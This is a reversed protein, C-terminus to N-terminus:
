SIRFLGLAVNLCSSSPGRLTTSRHCPQSSRTSVTASCHNLMGRRAISCFSVNPIYSRRAGRCRSVYERTKRTCGRGMSKACIEHPRNGLCIGAGFGRTQLICWWCRSRGLHSWGHCICRTGMEGLGNQYRQKSFSSGIERCGERCEVGGTVRVVCIRPNTCHECVPSGQHCQEQLCVSALWLVKNCRDSPFWSNFYSIRVPTDFAICAIIKPWLPAKPDPRSKVFELLTDAALLGGM